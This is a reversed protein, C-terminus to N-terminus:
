KRQLTIALWPFAGRRRRQREFRSLDTSLRTYVWAASLDFATGGVGNHEAISIM